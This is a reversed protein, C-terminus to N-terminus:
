TFQSVKTYRSADKLRNVFRVIKQSRWLLSFASSGPRTGNISVFPLRFSCRKSPVAPPTLGGMETNGVIDQGTKRLIASSQWAPPYSQRTERPVTSTEGEISPEFADIANSVSGRHHNWETEIAWIVGCRAPGVLHLAYGQCRSYETEGDVHFCIRANGM